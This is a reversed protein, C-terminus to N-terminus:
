TITNQAALSYNYIQGHWCTIGKDFISEIKRKEIAPIPGRVVCGITKVYNWYKRGYINPVKLKNTRYGYMDFYSDIREAFERTISRNSLSFNHLNLAFNAGPSQIGKAQPPQIQKDARSAMVGAVQQYGSYAMSIGHSIMSGGDIGTDIFPLANAVSAGVGIAAQAAGVAVSINGSQIALAQSNSNQALWIKYADQTWACTPYGALSLASENDTSYGRYDKPILRMTPNVDYNGTITFSPTHDKFLEYRFIAGEGMNNHAYLFSYPYSYLKNNRPTYGDLPVRDTGMALPAFNPKSGSELLYINGSMDQETPENWTINLIGKPCMWMAQIADATGMGSLKQIIEFLKIMGQNSSDVVFLPFGSFVEGNMTGFQIAGFSDDRLDLSSQIIIALDNINTTTFEINSIFEGLELGEDVMNAGLSDDNTHEREVFCAPIIWDFQYTQMVDLEVHIKSVTETIYEIRTVFYYYNKGENKMVCYCVKLAELDDYNLPVKVAQDKRLYTFDTGFWVGKGEIYATQTEKTKFITTHEYRPDFPIDAALIIQSYRQAM